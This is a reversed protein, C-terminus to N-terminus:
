RFNVALNVTPYVVSDMALYRTKAVVSENAKAKAKAKAATKAKSQKVKSQIAMIAVLMLMAGLEVLRATEIAVARAKLM